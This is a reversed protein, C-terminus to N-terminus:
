ARSVVSWPLHRVSEVFEVVAATGSRAPRRPTPRSRSATPRSAPRRRRRVARSAPRYGASHSGGQYGGYQSPYGPRHQQAGGLQHPQHRLVPRARRVPRVAAARVEAAARAGFHDGRRAAIRRYLGSGAPPDACHRRLPGLWHQRRGAQRIVEAIVLLFGLVSVAAVAGMATTQKPLLGAGALLGALLSAVVAFGLGLSTGSASGLQPFDTRQDQVDARLQVSVYGLRASGGRRAPLVAAQESRRRTSPAQPQEVKGFQQTPASFQQTPQQGPPYGSSNPPYTMVEGAITPAGSGAVSRRIATWQNM